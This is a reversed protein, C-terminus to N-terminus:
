ALTRLSEFCTSLGVFHVPDRLLASTRRRFSVGEGWGEGASPLPAFITDVGTGKEWRSFTCSSPSTKVLTVILAVL